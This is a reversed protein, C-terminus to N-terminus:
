VCIIKNQEECYEKIKPILEEWQKDVQATLTDSPYPVKFKEYASQMKDVLSKDQVLKKYQEWNIEPPKEPNAQVRFCLESNM